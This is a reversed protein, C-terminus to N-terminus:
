YVPTDWSDIEFMITYVNWLVVGSIEFQRCRRAICREHSRGDEWADCFTWTFLAMGSGQFAETQSKPDVLM